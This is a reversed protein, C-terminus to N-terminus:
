PRGREPRSRVQKLRYRLQPRTVGLVRAAESVNQGSRALVADMLESQVQELSMNRQLFFDVFQQMADSATCRLNGSRDLGTQRQAEQPAPVVSFLDAVDIQGSHQALLVGREVVNELERVNGPWPHNKLAAMAKDTVGEIRKGERTAYKEIFRDVLLAIDDKRERLPAITVPFVNLRYYLDKRFRGQRVAEALDQNTAAVLRVDVKRTRTDGVREVEGEQLVRLLKTQAPAPLDAIEDLFLTGGHAREFRGPRSRQAGTFAGQEVGFLESEVLQEPLAGCNVPVFAANARSSGKHLARAFMEKGVGTEGLLLVTIQSRAAKKLLDWASRFAASVGVLDDPVLAEDISYRLTQVQHQLELLQDVLPDARFYKMLPEAQAADWQDLPRGLIRCQEAGCETEEFLVFKHMIGSCYGCAYGLQMWCCPGPEIGFIERHVDGEFSNLWRVDAFCRGAAIDAELRIPEVKAIGELTHLAPGKALIEIDPADPYLKRVLEADRLGAAYGMRTFVGRTRDMGLTNVLEKRFSGFATRHLLIMREEGLWVQGTPFSFQVRSALEEIGAADHGRVARLPSKEM